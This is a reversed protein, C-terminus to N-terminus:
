KLLKFGYEKLENIHYVNSNIKEFNDGHSIFVIENLIGLVKYKRGDKELTDKYKINSFDDEYKGNVIELGKIGVLYKNKGDTIVAITDDRNENLHDEIFCVIYLKNEDPLIGYKWGTKDINHRDFFKEYLDYTFADVDIVKVQDCLKIM